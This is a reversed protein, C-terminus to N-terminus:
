KKKQVPDVSGNGEHVGLKFAWESYLQEVVEYASRCEEDFVEAEKDLQTGILRERGLRDSGSGWKIMEGSRGAKTACYVMSCAGNYGSIAHWPSGLWKAVYFSMTKLYQITERIPFQYPAVVGSDTIGPHTLFYIPRHPHTALYCHLLEIFRKSSGYPHSTHEGTPDQPDYVSAISTELSASWLVKSTETLVPM